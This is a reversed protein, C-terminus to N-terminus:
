VSTCPSPKKQDEVAMRLLKTKEVGETKEKRKPSPEYLAAGVLCLVLSLIGMLNAHNDWILANVFITLFKNVVGVLTFTTASVSRRCWWGSYAICTGAICSLLLLFMSMNTWVMDSANNTEGTGLAFMAILPLSLLNTYYVNGSLTLEVDKVLSKGFVMLFCILFFYMGVWTYAQLGKQAFELDNRVYSIAGLVIVTLGTFSKLSPLSRGLYLYDLISVAIPSMARFVIVTEVNLESLARMNCYLSAVFAICYIGFPKVKGWELPDPEGGVFKFYKSPVSVLIITCVTHTHTHKCIECLTTTIKNGDIKRVCYNYPQLSPHFELL